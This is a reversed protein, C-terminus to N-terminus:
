RVSKACLRQITSGGNVKLILGLSGNGRHPRFASDANLNFRLTLSDATGLGFCSCVAIM